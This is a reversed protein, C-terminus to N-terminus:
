KACSVSLTMGVSPFFSKCGVERRLPQDFSDDAAVQANGTAISSNERAIQREGRRVPTSRPADPESLRPAEAGRRAASRAPERSRASSGSLDRSRSVRHGGAPGYGDEEAEERAYEREAAREYAAEQAEYACDEDCWARADPSAIVCLALAAAAASILKIM